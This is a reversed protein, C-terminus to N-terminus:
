RRVRHGAGPDLKRVLAANFGTADVVLPARVEHAGDGRKFDVGCVKGNKVLTDTAEHKEFFKAGSKETESLLRKVFKDFYLAVSPHEGEYLFAQKGAPSFVRIRRPSYLVEDDPPLSVQVKDFIPKDVELIIPKGIKDRAEADFLAVDFGSRALDRAIVCGAPGAGVVVVDFDKAM